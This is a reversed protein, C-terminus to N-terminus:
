LSSWSALGTLAHTAMMIEANDGKEDGDDGDGGGGGDGDDDDYDM